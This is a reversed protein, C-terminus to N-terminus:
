NRKILRVERTPKGDLFPEAYDIYSDTVEMNEYDICDTDSVKSIKVGEELNASDVVLDNGEREVIAMKGVEGEELLNVCKTGCKFGLEEDIKLPKGNRLEYTLAIPATKIQKDFEEKSMSRIADSLTSVLYNPDLKPHGFEDTHMEGSKVHTNLGEISAGEAIVMVAYPKGKDKENEFYVEKAKEYIEEIHTTEEGPVVMDADGYAATGAAVWDTSRGFVSVMSIRGHTWAIEFSNLTTEAAQKVASPYGLSFYTRGLDNDM